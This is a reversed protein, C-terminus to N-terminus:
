ERKFGNKLGHSVLLCEERPVTIDEACKEPVFVFRKGSKDQQEQVTLILAAIEQPEGTIEIKVANGEKKFKQM